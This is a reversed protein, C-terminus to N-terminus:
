AAPSKGKLWGSLPLVCLLLGAGLFGVGLAMRLWMRYLGDHTREIISEKSLAPNYYVQIPAGKAYGALRGEWYAKPKPEDEFSLRWGWISKGDVFYEYLVDPYFDGSSGTTDGRVKVELFKGATATFRELHRLKDIQTYDAWSSKFGLYAVVLGCLFALVQVGLPTGGAPEPEEQVPARFSGPKV